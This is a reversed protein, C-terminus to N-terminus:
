RKALCEKIARDAEEFETPNSEQGYGRILLSDLAHSKAKSGQKRIRDAQGDGDLDQIFTVGDSFPSQVRVDLTRDDYFVCETHGDLWGTTYSILEYGQETETRNNYHSNCARGGLAVTGSIAIFAAVAYISMKEMNIDSLGKKKFRKKIKSLKILEKKRGRGHGKGTFDALV